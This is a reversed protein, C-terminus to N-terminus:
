RGRGKWVIESMDALLNTYRFMAYFWDSLRNIYVLLNNNIDDQKSLSIMKREARRAITRCVNLQASVQYTNLTSNWIFENSPISSLAHHVSYNRMIAEAKSKVRQDGTPTIFNKRQPLKDMLDDIEKELRGVHRKTLRKTKVKINAPSALDSGAIILEQEIRKLSRHLEPVMPETLVLGVNANLEDITGIAEVRLDDKDVRKGGFLSTTGSDGTRTCIKVM